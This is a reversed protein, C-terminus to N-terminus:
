GCSGQLIRAFIVYFAETQTKQRGQRRIKRDVHLGFGKYSQAGKEEGNNLILGLGGETLGPRSHCFGNDPTAQKGEETMFSDPRLGPDVPGKSLGHNISIILACLSACHSSLPALVGEVLHSLLNCKQAAKLRTYGAKKGAGFTCEYGQLFSVGSSTKQALIYAELLRFAQNFKHMVPHGLHSLSHAM